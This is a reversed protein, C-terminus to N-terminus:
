GSPMAAWAPSTRTCWACRPRSPSRPRSRTAAKPWCTWAPRAPWPHPSTVLGQRSRAGQTATQRSMADATMPSVSRVLGGPRAPRGALGAVALMALLYPLMILLASPVDVGLAPLQFQLATAAGFLLCAALTRGLKWNGFIVAAIALYGVGKTMGETFTHIDGISLFCGALASMVGTVM